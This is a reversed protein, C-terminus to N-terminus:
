AANERRAILTLWISRKVEETSSSWIVIEDLTRSCGQCLASVADMQCVNTCPSPLPGRHQRPDFDHPNVPQKNM